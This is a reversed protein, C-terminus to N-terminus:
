NTKVGRSLLKKGYFEALPSPLPGPGDERLPKLWQELEHLINNIKTTVLSPTALTAAQLATASAFISGEISPFAVGVGGVTVAPHTHTAFATLFQYLLTQNTLVVGSLEQIRLMIKELEHVLAHGKVLPQVDRDDNGAMFIINGLSKVAGGQSNDEDTNTVIKINERGVIRITDAKIGIGSKNFYTGGGASGGRKTGYNFDIDTYQSLYITAADNKINPDALILNGEEDCQKAFSGHPGACLMIAGCGVAGKGGKGSVRGHPRDRGLVIRSNNKGLIVVEDQTSNYGTVPEIKPNGFFGEFHLQSIEDMNELQELLEPCMGKSIDGEKKTRKGM